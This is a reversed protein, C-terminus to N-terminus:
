RPSPRGTGRRSRRARRRPRSTGRRRSALIGRAVDRAGDEGAARHGPQEEDDQRQDPEARHAGVAHAALEHPGQARGEGRQQGAAGLGRGDPKQDAVHEHARQLREGAGRAGQGLEGLVPQQRAGPGVAGAAVHRPDRGQQGRAQGDGREPEADRRPHDRGRVEGIEDADAQGRDGHQEQAAVLGVALPGVARRAPRDHEPDAGADDPEDGGAQAELLEAQRRHQEREPQGVGARHEVDPPADRVAAAGAQRPDAARQAELEGARHDGDHREVAGAVQQRDAGHIGPWGASMESSCSMKTATAMRVIVTPRTRGPMMAWATSCIESAAARRAVPVTASRVRAMRASLVPSRSAALARTSMMWTSTRERSSTPAM